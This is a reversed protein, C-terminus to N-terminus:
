NKPLRRLARNEVWQVLHEYSDAIQVLATESDKMEKALLRAEEACAHWHESDNLLFKNTM